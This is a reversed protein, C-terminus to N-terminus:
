GTYIWLGYMGNSPTRFSSILSGSQNLQYITDPDQNGEILWISDSSDLDLQRIATSPATISTIVSGSTDMKYVSDVGYDTHWISGQSDFAVGRPDSSPTSFSQLISGTRSWQQIDSYSGGTVWLCGASDFALAQPDATLLTDLSYESDVNRKQIDGQDGGVWLCANSDVAAGGPIGLLKNVVSGNQDLRYVGFPLVGGLGQTTWICDVGDALDYGQQPNPFENSNYPNQPM